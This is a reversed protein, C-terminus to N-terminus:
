LPDGLAADADAVARLEVLVARAILGRERVRDLKRGASTLSSYTQSVITGDRRETVVLVGYRHQRTLQHIDATDLARRSPAEGNLVAPKSPHTVM